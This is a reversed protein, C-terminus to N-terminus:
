NPILEIEVNPLEGLKKMVFRITETGNEKIVREQEYNFLVNGIQKLRGATEDDSYYDIQIDGIRKLKGSNVGTTYYDFSTNGIKQVKGEKGTETYYDIEIDWIKKVKRYKIGETYYDVDVGTGRDIVVLNGLQDVSLRTSPIHFCIEAIKGENEAIFISKLEVRYRTAGTPAPPKTNEPNCNSKITETVPKNERPIEYTPECASILTIIGTLLITIKKMM